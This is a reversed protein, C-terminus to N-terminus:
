SERTQRRLVYQSAPPHTSTAPVSSATSTRLEVSLPPRVNVHDSAAHCANRLSMLAPANPQLHLPPGSVDRVSQSYTEQERKFHERRQAPCRQHWDRGLPKSGHQDDGAAAASRSAKPSVMADQDVVGQGLSGGGPQLQVRSTWAVM